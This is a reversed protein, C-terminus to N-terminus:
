SSKKTKKYEQKLLGYILDDYWKNKFFTKKRLRGEPKFGIRELLKQSRTNEHLVRAQIRNLKLQKFGFDIMLRLAEKSFGKGWYRKDLWIGIDAHKNKYNINLLNITGILEKEKIPEIGFEYDKKKKINEQTRKIFRKAEKLDFPSAIVFTYKTIDRDKANRSIFEADSIRLKRLKVTKTKLDM